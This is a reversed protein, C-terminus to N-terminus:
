SPRGGPSPIRAVPTARPPPVPSPQFRPLNCPDDVTLLVTAQRHGLLAGEELIEVAKGIGCVIEKRELLHIELVTLGQEGLLTHKGAPSQIDVGRVPARQYALETEVEADTAVHLVDLVFVPLRVDEEVSRTRVAAGNTIVAGPIDHGQDLM